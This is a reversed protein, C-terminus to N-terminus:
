IVIGQETLLDEFDLTEGREFEMEAKSFAEREEESLDEDTLKELVTASEVSLMFLLPKLAPLKEEPILAVYEILEERLATM